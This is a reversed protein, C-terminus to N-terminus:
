AVKINKKYHYIYKPTKKESHENIGRFDCIMTEMQIPYDVSLYFYLRQIVEKEREIYCQNNISLFRYRGIQRYGVLTRVDDYRFYDALVLHPIKFFKILIFIAQYRFMKEGANLKLGNKSTEIKTVQEIIDTVAKIIKLHDQKKM